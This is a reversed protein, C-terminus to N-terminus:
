KVQVKQTYQGYATHIVALYTGATIESVNLVNGATRAVVAGNLSVLEVGTIVCGANAILYETAPNPYVTIGAADANIDTVSNQKNSIVNDIKVTGTKSMQSPTQVIKVGTIKSPGELQLPVSVYRWGLFDMNCVHVYQTATENTLELYLGNNTLDGNVHVGLTADPAVTQDTDTGQRKFMVEGGETDTFTYTFQTAASDFLKDTSKAVTASKLGISQEESLSFLEHNGMDDVTSTGPKEAGADVANFTITIPEKITIGDKDAFEGSLNLKYTEGVTLDKLLPIRFFGYDSGSKSNSMSRKNFSVTNGQSDTCTIQNLIPTVNPLKDFRFEINAGKYHVDEDQKPFSGLIEMFNRDTTTFSFSFPQELNLGDPHKADTGLTVTYTTNTQYPTSPTFVMRYNQDEWTFTGEAAPTITFANQTAEIDMDWNFQLVVPTNCLVPEDGDKWVPAYSEVVPPTTRCKAMQMNAFTVEDATVTITSETTYHTDCSARVTYTGPKVDKFLFFGNTHVTHTTYTGVTNGTEDILEVTAGQITALKDEGFKEYAGTRPIRTDNLRGAVVGVTLGDVGFFEDIAKRFHWAELWCFDDSMLRYAEPIYDHFSGESLMATINNGRLVGLGSTGWSPYFSWDGRCNPTSNTWYTSKNQLLYKNLIQCITMDNPKVPQNDYGRYLMLPFNRRAATGTANSHISFFIDANSKNSLAVITTLGLDDDSTNTVRSMEVAYGKATLMDRLQLGKSLNSNSEWYGNPDGQQYPEIVVNRDNPDHGGHGPNLYVKLGQASRANATLAAGAAIAVAAILKAKNTKM